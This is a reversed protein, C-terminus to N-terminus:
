WEFCIWCGEKEVLDLLKYYRDKNDMDTTNINERLEPINPPKVCGRLDENRGAYGEGFGFITAFVLDSESCGDPEWEPHWTGNKQYLYIAIM